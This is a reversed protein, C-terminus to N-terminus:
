FYRKKEEDSIVQYPYDELLGKKIYLANKKIVPAVYIRVPKGQEHESKKTTVVGFGELSNVHEWISRYNYVDKRKDLEEKLESKTLGEKKILILIIKRRISSQRVFSRLLGLYGERFQTVPEVM